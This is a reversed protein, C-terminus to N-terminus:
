LGTTEAVDVLKGKTFDILDKTKILLTAYSCGGSSHIYEKKLLSHDIYKPIHDCGLPTVGGIETGTHKLVEDANAIRLKQGVIQKLKKVDVRRDGLIIAMHPNGDKVIFLISKAIDSMHVGLSATADASTKAGHVDHWIIKADLENEEVIKQTKAVRQKDEDSINENTQVISMVIIKDSCILLLYDLNYLM